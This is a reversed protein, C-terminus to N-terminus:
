AVGDHLPLGLSRLTEEIPKCLGELISRSTPADLATPRKVSRLWTLYEIARGQAQADDFMAASIKRLREPNQQLWRLQEGPGGLPSFSPDTFRRQLQQRFDEAAALPEDKEAAM